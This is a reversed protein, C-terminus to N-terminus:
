RGLLRLVVVPGVGEDGGGECGGVERGYVRVGQGM